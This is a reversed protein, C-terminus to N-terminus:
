IQQMGSASQQGVSQLRPKTLSGRLTGAPAITLCGSWIPRNSHDLWNAPVGAAIEGEPSPAVLGPAVEASCASAPTDHDTCCRRGHRVQPGLLDVRCLRRAEVEASPIVEVPSRWDGDVGFGLGDAAGVDRPCCRALGVM